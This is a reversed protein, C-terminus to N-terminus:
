PIKHYKSKKSIGIILYGLGGLVLLIFTNQIPKDTYAKAIHYLLATYIILFAISAIAFGLLLGVITYSSVAADTFTAICLTELFVGTTILWIAIIVLYVWFWAPKWALKFMTYDCYIPIVAKWSKENAKGFLFWMGIVVLLPIVIMIAIM